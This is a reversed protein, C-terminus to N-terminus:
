SVPQAVVPSWVPTDAGPRHSPHDWRPPAGLLEGVMRVRTLEGFGRM